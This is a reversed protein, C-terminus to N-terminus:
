ENIFLSHLLIFLITGIGTFISLWVWGSRDKNKRVALIGMLFGLIELPFVVGVTVDWWRDGFRLIGLAKVLTISAIIVGLFFINLGVSWKGLKSTVM